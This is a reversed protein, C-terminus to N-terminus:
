RSGRNKPHSANQWIVGAGGLALGDEELTPELLISGRISGTPHSARGGNWWQVQAAGAPNREIDVYRYPVGLRELHRRIIQTAACWSTGYVVVPAAVLTGLM